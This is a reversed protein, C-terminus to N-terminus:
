RDDPLETLSATSRTAGSASHRVAHRDPDRFLLCYILLVVGITIGTDALNFTPFRPLDIWDIVYGYRFRDIINGFAGGIQLGLAVALLADRAAARAYYIGLITVAVVALVKIIESSGQFLGFASGTNRVFILRLVGPVVTVVDHDGEPGLRDLVIRKSLLDLALVIAAAAAAFIAPRIISASAAQPAPPKISCEKARARCAAPHRDVSSAM